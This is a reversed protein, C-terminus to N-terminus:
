FHILDLFIIPIKGMHPAGGMLAGGLLPHGSASEIKNALSPRNRNYDSLKGGADPPMFKPTSLM